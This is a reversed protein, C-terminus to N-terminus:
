QCAEWRPCPAAPHIATLVNEGGQRVAVFAVSDGARLGEVLRADLVRYTLTSFPIKAGPVLKLRITLRQGDEVTVSRVVARTYVPAPGSAADAAAAGASGVGLAVGLWFTASLLTTRKMAIDARSM